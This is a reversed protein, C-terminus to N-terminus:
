PGGLLKSSETGTLKLRTRKGTELGVRKKENPDNEGTPPRGFAFIQDIDAHVVLPRSDNRPFLALITSQQQKQQQKRCKGATFLLCVFVILRHTALAFIRKSKVKVHVCM